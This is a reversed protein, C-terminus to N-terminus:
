RPWLVVFDFPHRILGARHGAEAGSGVFLDIRAPGVIATGTDQALVLRALKESGGKGDPIETDIWAPMGYPWLSRDIAVSRLPTLSLGAGGIPGSDAPLADNRAFFVFSRNLRILERAFGADVKLRAILKDMTMQEPPISERRSLERGLSTYPHGNRGSYVLRTVKGDPLRIRGSGQVQLVFRDVPDRMWLIELGQGALAGEEIAGRDPFPELGKATRRASTLSPDLGPWNDGSMKTVLDAPRGYLPTPFADSRTLTGEFEPEFYGTMFGREAGAPRIRWFTFNDEFFRRAADESPEGGALLSAAKTCLAPLAPPPVVGQRLPPDTECGQAFLRLVVRQDDASWGALVAPAVPEARAGQPLPPPSAEVGTMAMGAAMLGLVFGAARIM